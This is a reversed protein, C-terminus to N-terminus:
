AKALEEEIIEEFVSFPQAGSVFRGNIFFAPTGKVGYNQGEELDNKVENEMQGSDLCDNFKETNLGLEKAYQKLSEIDLADQNEFLKDHIKWYTEDNGAVFRACEAAEAAKQANEHFGLPFDRFIYRVKETEIYKETIEPLTQQFHRGCFPCQFDSFEIITVKADQNGKIADDDISVDIIEKNTESVSSESESIEIPNLNGALSGDKSIFVPIISGQYNFNVQYLGSVEEVSNITLGEVGSAKYYNLLINGAENASVVKGTMGIKGTIGSFNGVLLVIVLIGVVFTSLVWPNNRIKETLNIKKKEKALNEEKNEEM